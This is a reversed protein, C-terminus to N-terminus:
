FPIKERVCFFDFFQTLDTFDFFLRKKFTRLLSKSHFDFSARNEKEHGSICICPCGLALLLEAIKKMEHTTILNKDRAGRGRGGIFWM